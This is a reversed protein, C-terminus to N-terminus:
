ARLALLEREVLRKEEQCSQLAVQLDNRNHEAFLLDRQTQHLEQRMEALNKETDLSCENRRKEAYEINRLRSFLVEQEEKLSTRKTQLARLEERKKEVEKRLGVVKSSLQDKKTLFRLEGEQALLAAELENFLEEAEFGATVNQSIESFIEKLLDQPLASAFIELLQRLTEKQSFVLNFQFELQKVKENEQESSFTQKKFDQQLREKEAIVAKLQM